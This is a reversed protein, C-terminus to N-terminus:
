RQIGFLSKFKKWAVDPNEGGAIEQQRGSDPYKERYRDFGSLDVERAGPARQPVLKCGCHKCVNADHFVLERCDPCRVHTQLYPNGLWAFFICLIHLIFGPMLFLFYGGVVFPLWLIGALINGKYIQGAGPIVLSLVAAIGPDWYRIPKETSNDMM